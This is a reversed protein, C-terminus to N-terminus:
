QSAAVAGRPARRGKPAEPMMMTVLLSDTQTVVLIFLAPDGLPMRRYLAWFNICTVQKGRVGMVYSEQIQEEKTTGPVM